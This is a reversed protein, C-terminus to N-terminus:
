RCRMSIQLVCYAVVCMDHVTAYMICAVEGRIQKKMLGYWRGSGGGFAVVARGVDCVEYGPGSKKSALHHHM